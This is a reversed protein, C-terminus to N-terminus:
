LAESTSRAESTPSSQASEQVSSAKASRPIGASSAPLVALGLEAPDALLRHRPVIRTPTASRARASWSSRAWTATGAPRTPRPTVCRCSRPTPSRTTSADVRGHVVQVDVDDPTLEGLSVFARLELTSGLEPADGVGSSEVHDVRVGRGPRGSGASGRRSSARAQTTATSRARPARPRRTSGTCTTACWAARSCRRASPRCPTGSWRSGAPRCARRRRPRLLLPAVQKEILDYLAAAELDDRRDPDAVGDATPIAWGNHGDYWEDWWGDLVSLNLCGNLAAKM